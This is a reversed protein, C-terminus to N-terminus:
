NTHEGMTMTCSLRLLSKLLIWAHLRFLLFLPFRLVILMLLDMCSGAQNVRSTAM